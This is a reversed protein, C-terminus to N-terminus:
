GAARGYYLTWSGSRFNSLGSEDGEEADARNRSLPTEAIPIHRGAKAEGECGGVSTSMLRLFM